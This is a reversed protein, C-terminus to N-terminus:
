DGELEARVLRNVLGGDLGEVGSRMVHGVVRGAQKQDDIGLEAIAARVVALTEDESLNEPLWRGLYDVEFALAVAQDRGREGLDEYERMAKRMKKVYAAMTDRYLADDVEGTFGPEAKAQSVETEIQRIVNLRPRDGSKMADRLEASLEDKISM